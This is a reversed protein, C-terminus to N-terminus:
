LRLFINYLGDYPPQLPKRVADHRVFVHTCTVLDHSIHVRQQLHSRAPIAKLQQMTSKLGVVYTAPDTTTDHKPIPHYATTRIHKSGLLHMLQTWLASEFQSGRDTTITSPVGFRSIWGNAFARIVTEATINTLKQGALLTTM